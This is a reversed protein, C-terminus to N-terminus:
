TMNLDVDYNQMKNSTQLNVNSLVLFLIRKTSSDRILVDHSCLCAHRCINKHAVRLLWAVKKICISNKFTGSSLKVSTFLVVPTQRQEKYVLEFLVTVIRTNLIFKLCQIPQSDLTCAMECNVYLKNCCKEFM